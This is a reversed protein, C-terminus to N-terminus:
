RRFKKPACLLYSCRAHEAVERWDVSRRDLRLGIWGRPGLYAPLYYRDPSAKVLAAAEGALVRCCIAIIGDGHHDNLYYLFIKKGVLFAAHDGKDERVTAPLQLCIDALRVFRKAILDNKM